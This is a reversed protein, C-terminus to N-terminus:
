ENSELKLTEEVITLSIPRLQHVPTDISIEAQKPLVFPLLKILANVRDKASLKALLEPLSDLENSIVKQVIAKSESTTKNSVGAVRGGFKKGTNNM